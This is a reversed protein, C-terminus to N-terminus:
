RANVIHRRGVFVHEDIIVYANNEHRVANAEDRVVLELVRRKGRVRRECLSSLIQAPSQLRQM